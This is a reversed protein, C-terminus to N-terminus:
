EPNLMLRQEISTHICIEQVISIIHPHATYSSTCHIINSLTCHVYGLTYQVYWLTSQVYGLTCQVYGLTCQVYGLTCQVNYM